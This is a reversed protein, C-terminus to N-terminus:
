CFASSGPGLAAHGVNPAVDGRVDPQVHDQAKAAGALRERAAVERWLVRSPCLGHVLPTRWARLRRAGREDPNTECPRVRAATDTLSTLFAGWGAVTHHFDARQWTVRQDGEGALKVAKRRRNSGQKRGSARLQLGPSCTVM